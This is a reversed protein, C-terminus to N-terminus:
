KKRMKVELLVIGKVEFTKMHSRYLQNKKNEVEFKCEVTSSGCKGTKYLVM